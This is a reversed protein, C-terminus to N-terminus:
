TLVSEYRHEVESEMALEGLALHPGNGVAYGLEGFLEFAADEIISENLSM